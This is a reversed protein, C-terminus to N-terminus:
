GGLLRHKEAAFEDDTLAGSAHLRALRELEDLRDGQPAAAPTPTAQGRVRGDGDLDLGTAEEVAGLMADRAEPQDSLDIVRTQVHVGPAPAAAGGAALTDRLAEAREMASEAGSPMQDWHVDLRDHHERDFTVPLTMGASPWRDARCICGHSLTFPEVGLAQVVLTMSVNAISGSTWQTASVVQATGEVPDKIRRFLRV